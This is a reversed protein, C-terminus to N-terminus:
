LGSINVTYLSSFINKGVDDLLAIDVPVWRTRYAEAKDVIPGEQITEREHDDASSAYDQNKTSLQTAPFDSYIHRTKEYNDFDQFIDINENDLQKYLLTYKQMAERFNEVVMQCWLKLPYISIERLWFRQVFMDCVREYQEASYAYNSWDLTPAGEEGHWALLDDHYLEGISISIVAHFDPKTNEIEYPPIM